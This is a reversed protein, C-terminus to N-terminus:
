FQLLFLSKCIQIEYKCGTAYMKGEKTKHTDEIGHNKDIEDTQQIVYESGDPNTVLKFTEKTMPYLNERGRRCFFYIVYFIMNQQLHRPDPKQM